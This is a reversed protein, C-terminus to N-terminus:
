PSTPACSRRASRTATSASSRRTTPSTGPRWPRWATSTGPSTRWNPWNEARRSWPADRWTTSSPSRGPRTRAMKTALSREAYNAFGLLQALEHRLALIQEMLRHQGLARCAPGQDSARTGYATYVEPAPGPRRRLDDGALLLPLRADAALGARGAADGDPAGPGQRLGAARRPQAEDDIHKSWANTADLLNEAYKSTLQSLEQSIDKYRAQQDPPLDIGSLHFDRLANDLLKRQARTSTGPGRVAQYGRFLDANQGVETGYDSLKPLCANYAARLADSNMVGNLHGVPSWVRSLRDDQEELPEIFGEWTPLDRRQHPRRHPGATRWPPM